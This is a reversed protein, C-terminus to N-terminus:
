TLFKAISRSNPPILKIMNACENSIAPLNAGNETPMAIAKQLQPSSPNSYNSFGFSELVKIVKSKPADVPFKAM